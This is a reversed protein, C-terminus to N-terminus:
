EVKLPQKFFKPFQRRYDFGLKGVIVRVQKTTYEVDYKEKIIQSLKNLTLRPNSEIIGEIEVLENKSLKANHGGGAFTPKLADLGGNSCATVWKHVTVYSRDIKTAADTISYGDVIMKVVMLRQYYRHYIVYKSIEKELETKSMKNYVDIKTKTSM